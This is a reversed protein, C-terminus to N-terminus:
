LSVETKKLCTGQGENNKGNRLRKGPHQGRPPRHSRHVEVKPPSRHHKLDLHELFLNRSCIKQIKKRHYMPLVEEFNHLRQLTANPHLRMIQFSATCTSLSPRPFEKSSRHSLSQVHSQECIRCLFAPKLPLSMSVCCHRESKNPSSCHHNGKSELNSM